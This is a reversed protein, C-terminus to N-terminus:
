QKMRAQDREEEEASRSVYVWYTGGDVLGHFTGPPNEPLYRVVEGKSEEAYRDSPSMPGLHLTCNPMVFTLCYTEDILAGTVSG